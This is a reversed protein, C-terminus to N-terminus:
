LELSRTGSNNCGNFGRFAAYTAAGIRFSHSKYLYKSLNCATLSRGLQKTFAQRCFSKGDARIFLHGPQDGRLKHYANWAAIPCYNSVLQAELLISTPRKGHKYHKFLVRASQSGVSVEISDLTLTNTSNGNSVTMEGVRLLGFFAMLYMCQFMVKNRHSHCTHELSDVLRMLIPLTIPLRSDGHPSCNKAGQLAKQILFHDSIDPLGLLKHVFSIASTHTAMTSPAYGKGHMHSLYLALAPQVPLVASLGYM